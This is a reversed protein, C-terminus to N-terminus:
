SLAVFRLNEKSFFIGTLLAYGALVSLSMMFGLLIIAFDLSMKQLKGSNKIGFEAPICETTWDKNVDGHLCTSVYPRQKELTVNDCRPVTCTFLRM